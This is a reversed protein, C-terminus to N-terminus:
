TFIKLMHRIQSRTKSLVKLSFPSNESNQDSIEALIIVETHESDFTSRKEQCDRKLHQIYDDNEVLKYWSSTELAKRSHMM